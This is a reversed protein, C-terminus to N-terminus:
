KKEPRNKLIDILSKNNKIVDRCYLKCTEEEGPSCSKLVGFECGIRFSDAVLVDQPKVRNEEVYHVIGILVFLGVICSFGITITKKNM